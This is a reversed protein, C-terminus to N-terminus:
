ATREDSRFAKIYDLNDKFKRKLTGHTTRLDALETSGVFLANPELCIPRGTERIIDDVAALVAEVDALRNELTHANIRASISWFEEADRFALQDSQGSRIKALARSTLLRQLISRSNRSLDQAREGNGSKGHLQVAAIRGAETLRYMKQRVKQLWGGARLGKRGMIRWFVKNSDPHKSEFGRLGFTEPFRTWAAVVLEEASFSRRDKQLDSAVLLLKEEATMQKEM